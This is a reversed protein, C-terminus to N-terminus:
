LHGVKVYDTIDHLDHKTIKFHNYYTVTDPNLTFRVTGNMVM